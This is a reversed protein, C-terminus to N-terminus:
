PRADRCNLGYAYNRDLGAVCFDIGPNIALSSTDTRSTLLGFTLQQLIGSPADAGTIGLDEGVVYYVDRTKQDNMIAKASCFRRPIFDLGATRFGTERVREFGLIALNSGWYIERQSFRDRVIHFANPSDCAPMVAKWRAYRNEAPTLPRAGAPLPLLPLAASLALLAALGTRTAAGLLGKRM